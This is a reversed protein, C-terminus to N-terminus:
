ARLDAHFERPPSENVPVPRKGEGIAEDSLCADLDRIVPGLHDAIVRNVLWTDTSPLFRECQDECESVMQRCRGAVALVRLRLTSEELRQQEYRTADTTWDDVVGLFYGFGFAALVILGGFFQRWAM